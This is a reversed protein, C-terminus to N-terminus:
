VAKGVAQQLKDFDVPKVLHDVFGVAQTSRVDDDSGYGTLAIGTLRYRTHLERMLEVGTGDPLGLDSIVLDFPRGQAATLAAACTAAPTVEYGLRGLLKSMVKLTDEHDEVLLIRKCAV